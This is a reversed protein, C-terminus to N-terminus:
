VLRYVRERCSARGIENFAVKNIGSTTGLTVKSVGTLASFGLFKSSEEPKYSTSSIEYIVETGVPLSTSATITFKDGIHVDPIANFSIYFGTIPEDILLSFRALTDDVNPTEAIAKIVANFADTGKLSNSGKLTFLLEGTLRNTVQGSDAIYDIDFQNNDPHQLVIYYMGAPMNQTMAGNLEYEFTADSKVPVITRTTYDDGFIWLAVGPSPEGEATGRIYVVDGRTIVPKSLTGSIFPRDIIIPLASSSVTSLHAKDRPASVAYVTYIGLDIAVSTMDWDYSWTGGANVPVQTFSGADNNIVVDNKPTPTFRAGNEPLNPGTLFLFVTNSDKNTGSFHVTEGRYYHSDGSAIITVAAQAHCVVSIGIIFIFCLLVCRKKRSMITPKSDQHIM